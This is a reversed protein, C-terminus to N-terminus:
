FKFNWGALHRLEGAGSTPIRDPMPQKHAPVPVDTAIRKVGTTKDLGPAGTDGPHRHKCGSAADM